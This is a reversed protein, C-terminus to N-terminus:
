TKKREASKLAREIARENNPTLRQTAGTEYRTITMKAVGARAALGEQSLGAAERRAKMEQGTM